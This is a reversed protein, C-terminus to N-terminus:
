VWEWGLVCLVCSAWDLSEDDGDKVALLLEKYLAEVSLTCDGVRKCNGFRFGEKSIVHSNEDPILCLLKFELETPLIGYSTSHHM